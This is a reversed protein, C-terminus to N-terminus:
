LMLGNLTETMALFPKQPPNNVRYSHTIVDDRRTQKIDEPQKWPSSTGSPPPTKAASEEMREQNTVEGTCQRIDAEQNWPLIIPKEKKRTTVEIIQTAIKQAIELKGKSNM